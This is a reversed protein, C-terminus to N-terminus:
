DDGGSDLLLTVHKASAKMYQFIARKRARVQYGSMCVTILDANHANMADLDM